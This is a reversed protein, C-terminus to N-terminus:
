MHYDHKKKCRIAEFMLTSHLLAKCYEEMDPVNVPDVNRHIVDAIIAYTQLLCALTYNPKQMISIGGALLPYTTKSLEDGLM